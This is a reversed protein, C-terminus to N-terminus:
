RKQYWFLRRKSASLTTESVIEAEALLAEVFTEEHYDDFIDERLQLLRRVMPDTKPVFEIIGQPSLQVLWQVISPLPINRGIALHHVLALALLGDAEGRQFLGPREQQAWGQSPTPNAADLYLPLFNLKEIRAREVALDLARHDGDFGVVLRAGADLAVCSYDGTNCGIDWLMEPQVKAVFSAVFERKARAEGIAYSNDTAYDSWVSKNEGVPELRSIWRRLGTLMHRFAIKSLKGTGITDRAKEPSAAASQLSAQMVVQTLVNWSLKKSLPLVQRLEQATIGEPTGRYWANHPIGILSRLLLPNLFQECFQRHALWFEGERYRRLSLTDIFVPRIGNFQINYASADSLTLGQDLADLHLDLHLLAAAKLLGFPWEYPYSIFHLKPHEVVLRAGNANDGLISHDVPNAPLLNGKAAQTDLFGSTRIFNFDDAARPM